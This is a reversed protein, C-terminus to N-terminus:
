PMEPMEGHHIVVALQEAHKGDPIHQLPPDLFQAALYAGELLVDAVIRWASVLFTYAIADAATGTPLHKAGPERLTGAGRRLPGAAAATVGFWDLHTRLPRCTERIIM